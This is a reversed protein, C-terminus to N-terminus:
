GEGSAIPQSFWHGKTRDRSKSSNTRDHAAKGARSNGKLKKMFEKYCAASRINKLEEYKPILEAGPFGMSIASKLWQCAEATNGRLSEVCALGFRPAPSGPDLSLAKKYDRYANEYQGMLRYTEARYGYAPILLPDIEIAATYDSIAEEYKRLEEKAMGRRTLATPDRPRQKLYADFDREAEGYQGLASYAKGRYFYAEVIGPDLKITKSSDPIVRDYRELGDYALARNFYADANAPDLEIARDYNPIAEAFRDKHIYTNGINHYPIAWKQDLLIAKKYDQIARESQKLDDFLVGRKNYADASRPNLSLATNYDSLADKYRKLFWYSFGRGVYARESKPNLKIVMGYDGIAKEYEKMMHYTDARVLYKSALSPGTQEGSVIDKTCAEIVKGYYEGECDEGCVGETCSQRRMNELTVACNNKVLLDYQYDMLQGLTWDPHEARCYDWFADTQRSREAPSAIDEPCKFPFERCLGSQCGLILVIVFLLTKLIMPTTAPSENM